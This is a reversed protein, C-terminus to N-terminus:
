SRRRKLLVLGGIALVGLTAPEPTINLTGPATIYYWDDINGYGEPDIWASLVYEGPDVSSTNWLYGGQGVLVEGIPNDGAWLQIVTNDTGGVWGLDYIDGTDVTASEAPATLLSVPPANVVDAPPEVLLWDPAYVYEWANDGSDVWAGFTHWGYATGTSDWTYQGASAPIAAEVLNWGAYSGEWLQLTTQFDGGTWQITFQDGGIIQEGGAQPTLIQIPDGHAHASLIICVSLAAIGWRGIAERLKM